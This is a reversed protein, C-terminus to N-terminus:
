HEVKEKGKRRSLQYSATLLYKKEASFGAVHEPNLEPTIALINVM